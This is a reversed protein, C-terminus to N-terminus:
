KNCFLQRRVNAVKTAFVIADTGIQNIDIIIEASVGPAILLIALFSLRFLYATLRIM